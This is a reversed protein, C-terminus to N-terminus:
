GGVFVHRRTAADKLQFIEERGGDSGGVASFRMGRFSNTMPDPLQDVSLTDAIDQGIIRNDVFQTACTDVNRAPGHGFVPFRHPYRRRNLTPALFLSQNTGILRHRRAQSRSSAILKRTDPLATSTPSTSGFRIRSRISSSTLRNK